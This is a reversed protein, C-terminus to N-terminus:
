GRSWRCTWSWGRSRGTWWMHWDRPLRRHRTRTTEWASSMTESPSCMHKEGYKIYCIYIMSNTKILLVRFYGYFTPNNLKMARATGLSGWRGSVQLRSVTDRPFGSMWTVGWLTRRGSLTEWASSMTESPSCAHKEGYKIYCIYIMSNTKILLVRFYGYFTPNNLKMARATGLSGWRQVGPAPEGTDRPTPVWEDVHSGTDESGVVDGVSLEDDGVALM